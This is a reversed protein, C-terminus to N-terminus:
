GGKRTRSVTRGPLNYQSFDYLTIEMFATSIYGLTSMNRTLWTLPVLNEAVGGGGGGGNEEEKGKREPYIM